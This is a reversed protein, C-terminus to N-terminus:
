IHSQSDACLTVPANELDINKEQDPLGWSGADKGLFADKADLASLDAGSDKNLWFDAMEHPLPSWYEDKYEHEVHKLFEEYYGARYEEPGIKGGFNMYDPHTNLLAMGGHEAIWAIKKKWTDINKERFLIFLTFDQPLTYPLEMYGKQDSTGKVHFPFITGVGDPQPEFPDTDFTSADYAIHLDHMWELNHYMCPSRFGVSKWEKLYKNIQLAHKRFNERSKYLERNHFLGHVGVEFGRETLNRRLTPSVKYEGAVFNFSSRFGLREELRMLRECREHGRFTDVDHTLVLAFRKNGPWGQWKEPKKCAKPDIPWIDQYVSRKRAAFARRLGIQLMRPIFPKLLYYSNVFKENIPKV